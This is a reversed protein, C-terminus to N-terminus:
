IIFKRTESPINGSGYLYETLVALVEKKLHPLQNQEENTFPNLVFKAADERSPHDSGIGIRVRNFEASAHQIISEIGNHGASSGGFVTKIAGFPVDLEDHVVVVNQVAIKYFDIVARVAEGSNNMFTTPKIVIVRNGSVTGKSEICRLDKKTTWGSFDDQKAVFEDVCAFGINHRTGDYEAGVNGLGVLLITKEQGLTYLPVSTGTQPKKQFLAM